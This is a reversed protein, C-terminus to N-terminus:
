RVKAGGFTMGFTAESPVSGVLSRGIGEVSGSIAGNSVTFQFTAGEYFIFQDVFQGLIDNDVLIGFGNAAAAESVHTDALFGGFAIDGNQYETVTITYYILNVQDVVDALLLVPGRGPRM